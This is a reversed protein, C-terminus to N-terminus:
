ILGKEAMSTFMLNQCGGVIFHDLVRVEVHALAEKLMRTLTIDAASPEAVGSPHNHAFIVAASNHKLARKIIERPYVSAGDIGGQFVKEFHIVRHKTDLLIMAFRESEEGALQLTLYNKVAQPSELTVGRVGLRSRLIDLAQQIIADDAAAKPSADMSKYGAREEERITKTSMSKKRQTRTIEAACESFASEPHARAM